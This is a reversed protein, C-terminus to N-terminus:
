CAPMRVHLGSCACRPVLFLELFRFQFELPAKVGQGEYRWFLHACRCRLHHACRFLSCTPSLFPWGAAKPLGYSLIKALPRGPPTPLEPSVSSLAPCSSPAPPTPHESRSLLLVHLLVALDNFAHLAALPVRLLFGLDGIM